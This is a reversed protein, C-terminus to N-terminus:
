ADYGSLRVLQTNGFIIIGGFIGLDDIKIPNEMMFWGNQPGGIKPVM